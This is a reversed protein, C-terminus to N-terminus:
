GIDAKTVIGADIKFNVRDTRYDMTVIFYRDDRRTVRVLYGDDMALVTAEDEAKGLYNATM